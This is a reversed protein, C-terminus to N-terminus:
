EGQIWPTKNIGGVGGLTANELVLNPSLFDVEHASLLFRTKNQPNKGGGVGGKKERM